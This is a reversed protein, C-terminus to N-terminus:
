AAQLDSQVTYWAGGWVARGVQVLSLQKGPLLLDPRDFTEGEIAPALVDFTGARKQRCRRLTAHAACCSSSALAHCVVACCQVACWLVACPKMENIAWVGPTCWCHGSESLHWAPLM